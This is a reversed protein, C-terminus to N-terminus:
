VGLSDSYTHTHTHADQEHDSYQSSLRPEARTASMVYAVEVDARTGCIWRDVSGGIWHTGPPLSVSTVITPSYEWAVM